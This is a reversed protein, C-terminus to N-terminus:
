DLLSVVGELAKIVTQIRVDKRNGVFAYCQAVTSRGTLAWAIWVTGVPKEPSGGGPGAVGSVAVAIDADAAQLAGEAMAKVVPESVAGQQLLVQADVGLLKQKAANSYTIYGEEYWASSGPVATIAFGIGGGTCSEATTIRWKKQQLANGVQTAVKELEDVM